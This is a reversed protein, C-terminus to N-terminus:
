LQYPEKTTNAANDADAGGAGAQKTQAGYTKDAARRADFGEWDKYRAVAIRSDWVGGNEKVAVGIQSMVWDALLAMQETEYRNLDSLERYDRTRSFINIPAGTNSIHYKANVPLMRGEGFSAVTLFAQVLDSKDADEEFHEALWAYIQPHYNAMIGCFGHFGYRLSALYSASNANYLRMPTDKVIKARRALTDLNCCTDKMFVFRGTKVAFDLEDDTVHWVGPAGPWEYLGLKTNKDLKAMLKTLNNKWVDTGMGPLAVRNTLMVVIDAGSAEAAKLEEVQDAFSYSVHGSAAVPVKACKKLAAPLAAKERLSLATMESTACTTFLGYVGREEYWGALPALAEYDVSGAGTFPTVMVPWVARYDNAM